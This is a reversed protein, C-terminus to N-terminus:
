RMSKSNPWSPSNRLQPLAMGMIAFAVHEFSNISKEGTIPECGCRTGRQNVGAKLGTSLGDCCDALHKLKLPKVLNTREDGFIVASFLFDRSPPYARSGSKTFRVEEAATASVDAFGKVEFVIFCM